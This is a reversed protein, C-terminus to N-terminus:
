LRCLSTVTYRRILLGLWRYFTIPKGLGMELRGRLLILLHCVWWLLWVLRGLVRGLIGHVGRTLGLSGVGLLVLHNLLTLLHSVRMLRLLLLWSMDMLVHHSWVHHWM